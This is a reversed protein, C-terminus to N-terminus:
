KLYKTRLQDAIKSIFESNTPKGKGNFLKSIAMFNGRSWTVEIANRIAREVRSATTHFKNAIVPYLVTTIRQIMDSHLFVVYCAERIYIFGKLNTPMGLEDLILEIDSVATVPRSIKNDHNSHTNGYEKILQILYEINMPLMLFYDAGLALAKKILPDKYFVSYIIIHKPRIYKERDENLKQLVNLGDFNPLIMNLLLVDVETDELKELLNFGDHTYGIVEIDDYSNIVAVVSEVFDIGGDSIFVKITM